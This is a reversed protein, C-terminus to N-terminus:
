PAAVTAVNSEAQLGAGFGQIHRYFFLATLTKTQRPNKKRKHNPKEGTTHPQGRGEEVLFRLLPLLPPVFRPVPLIRLRRLCCARPSVLSRIRAACQSQRREPFDPQQRKGEGPLPQTTPPLHQQHGLLPLTPEGPSVEQRGDGRGWSWGKRQEGRGRRKPRAVNLKTKTASFGRPRTKEDQLQDEVVM